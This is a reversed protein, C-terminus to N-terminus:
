ILRLAMLRGNQLSVISTMHQDLAHLLQAAYNELNFSSNFSSTNQLAIIAPCAFQWDYMHYGLSEVFWGNPTFAAQLHDQLRKQTDWLFAKVSKPGTSQDLYAEDLVSAAFVVSGYRVGMWNSEINYNAMRGMNNNVSSMLDYLANSVIQRQDVTLGEFGFDYAYVLERLVHARTLGKSLPNRVFASDALLTLMNDYAKQMWSKEETLLYIFAQYKTLTSIEYVGGATKSLRQEEHLINRYMSAYPERKIKERLGQAEKQLILGRPHIPTEASKQGFLQLQMAMLLGLLNSIFLLKGRM